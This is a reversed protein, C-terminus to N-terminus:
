DFLRQDMTSHYHTDPYLLASRNLGMVMRRRLPTLDLTALSPGSALIFLRKGEHVNKFDSIKKMTELLATQM